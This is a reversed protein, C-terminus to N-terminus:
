EENEEETEEEEEEVEKESEKEKEAEKRKARKLDQKGKKEAKKSKDAADKVARAKADAASVVEEPAKVAELQAPAFKKQSVMKKILGGAMTAPLYAGGAFKNNCKKCIYVGSNLRKVATFSCKPCAHKEKQKNEIDTIRKRIGRGYRSGFRGASGVKKTGSM